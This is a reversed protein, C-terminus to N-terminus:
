EESLVRKMQFNLEDPKPSKDIFKRNVMLINKANNYMTSAVLKPNLLLHGSAFSGFIGLIGLAIEEDSFRGTTDHVFGNSDNFKSLLTNIDYRNNKQLKCEDAILKLCIFLFSETTITNHNYFSSCIMIENLLRVCQNFRVYESLKKIRKYIKDSEIPKAANLAMSIADCCEYIEYIQWKSPSSNHVIFDNISDKGKNLLDYNEQLKKLANIDGTSITRRKENTKIDLSEKTILINDEWDFYKYASYFQSKPEM